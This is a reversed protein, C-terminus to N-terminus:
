TNAWVGIICAAVVASACWFILWKDKLLSDENNKPLERGYKKCFEEITLPEFTTKPVKRTSRSRPM